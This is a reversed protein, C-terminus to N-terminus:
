STLATGAKPGPTQDFAACPTFQLAVAESLPSSFFCGLMESSFGLPTIHRILRERYNVMLQQDDRQLPIIEARKSKLQIAKESGPECFVVAIARAARIDALLAGANNANMFATITNTSADVRIGALRAVHPRANDGATAAYMTVNGEIFAIQEASLAIPSAITM